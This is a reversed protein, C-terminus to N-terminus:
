RPERDSLVGITGLWPGVAVRYRKAMVRAIQAVHSLDHTVWTALLQGLTVRGLRPHMGTRALDAAGIGLARLATLNEARRAAFEDLLAGITWGAYRRRFGERDFPTFTRAEGDALIIRIRPMWDVHEGDALHAVVDRPSYTDPGETADLWHDPLDRLWPDLQAPARELVELAERVEVPLSSM